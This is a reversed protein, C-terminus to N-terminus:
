RLTLITEKKNRSDSHEGNGMGHDIPTDNHLKKSFNKAFDHFSSKMTSISKENISSETPRIDCKRAKQDLLLSVRRVDHITFVAKSKYKYPTHM